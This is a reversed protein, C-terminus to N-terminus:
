SKVSNNIQNIIKNKFETFAKMIVLVSEDVDCKSKFNVRSMVEVVRRAYVFEDPLGMENATPKIEDLENKM